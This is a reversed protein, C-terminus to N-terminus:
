VSWPCGAVPCKWTAGPPLAPHNNSNDVPKYEHYCKCELYYAELPSPVIEFWFQSYAGDNLHQKLRSSLETDSRGVYHVVGNGRSLMYVGILVGLINKNIDQETLPLPGTM